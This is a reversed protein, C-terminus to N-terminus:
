KTWTQTLSLKTIFKILLRISLRKYLLFRGCYNQNNILWFSGFSSNWFFSHLFFLACQPTIQTKLNIIVLCHKSRQSIITYCDHCWYFPLLMKENKLDFNFERSWCFFFILLPTPVFGFFFSRELISILNSLWINAVQFQFNKQKTKNLSFHKVNCFCKVNEHVSISFSFFFIFYKQFHFCWM